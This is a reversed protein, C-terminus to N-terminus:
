GVTIKGADSYKISNDFLNTLVERIREPDAHVYYLPRINNGSSADVMFDQSGIVYDLQLGKKEASFKLDGTLQELLEGVEVVVPHNSLRGDETKAATLLDQFLRGLHQTSAHAKELFDRAKGDIKCVADNLALALYGEIAAVPTRMEHSATSIFEARQKEENKEDTIDQFTAVFDAANKNADVLPLINLSLYIVKQSKTKLMLASSKFPKGTDSVIAFPSDTPLLAEGHEDVFFFVSDYRLGTAENAEWGLIQAGGKNIMKINGQQDLLVVGDAISNLVVTSTSLDGGLQSTNSSKTKQWFM